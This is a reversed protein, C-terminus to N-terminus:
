SRPPPPKLTGLLREIRLPVTGAREWKEIIDKKTKSHDREREMALFQELIWRLEATSQDM